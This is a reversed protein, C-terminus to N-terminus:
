TLALYAIVLGIITGFIVGNMYEKGTKWETKKKVLCFDKYKVKIADNPILVKTSNDGKCFPFWVAFEQNGLMKEYDDQDIYMEIYMDRM